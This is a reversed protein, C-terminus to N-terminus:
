AKHNTNKLNSVKYLVCRRVEKQKYEKTEHTDTCHRCQAEARCAKAIYGYRCCRFCQVLGYRLMFRECGKVERGEVLRDEIVQNAMEPSTLYVTLSLYVKRSKHVGWPWSVRAIWLSRYLKTNQRQLMEVAEKQNATNIQSIKVRHVFVPYLDPVVWASLVIEELWKTQQVLSEKDTREKTQVLIDRSSFKQVEVVGAEETGAAIRAL